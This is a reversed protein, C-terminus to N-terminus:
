ASFLAGWEESLDRVVDGIQGGSVSERLVRSVAKAQRVAEDYPVDLRGKLRNYFEELDIKYPESLATELPATETLADKLEKPLQAALGKTEERSLPEALTALFIRTMREAYARNDLNAYRQVRNIFEEYEM